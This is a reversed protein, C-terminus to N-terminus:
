GTNNDYNFEIESLVDINASGSEYNLVFSDMISKNSGEKHSNIIDQRLNYAHTGYQSVLRNNVM